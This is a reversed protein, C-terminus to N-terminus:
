TLFGQEAGGGRRRGRPRATPGGTRTSASRLLPGPGGLSVLEPGAAAPAAEARSPDARGVPQAAHLSMRDHRPRCCAAPVIAAQRRGQLCVVNESCLCARLACPNPNPNPYPTPAKHLCQAVFDHFPLSWRDRDALQPPPERSIMFIVRMPHVAWRPPAGEAMEVASIGLAWVDVQAARALAQTRILPSRLCPARCPATGVALPVV